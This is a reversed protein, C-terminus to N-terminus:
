GELGCHRCDTGVHHYDRQCCIRTSQWRFRSPGDAVNCWRNRCTTPPKEKDYGLPSAGCACAWYEQLCKACDDSPHKTPAAAGTGDVTPVKQEDM